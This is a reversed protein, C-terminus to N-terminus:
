HQCERLRAESGPWVAILFAIALTLAAGLALVLAAHAVPVALGTTEAVLLFLMGSVLLGFSLLVASRMTTCTIM